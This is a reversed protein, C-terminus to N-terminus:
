ICAVDEFDWPCQPTGRAFHPPEVGGVRVLLHFVLKIKHEVGSMCGQLHIRFMIGQLSPESRDNREKRTPDNTPHVLREDELPIQTERPMRFFFPDDLLCFAGTVLREFSHRSVETKTDFKRLMKELGMQVDNTLIRVHKSHHKTLLWTNFM